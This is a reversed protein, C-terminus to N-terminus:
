EKLWKLQYSIPQSPTGLNILEVRKGPVRLGNAIQYIYSDEYNVGWGFAFSPGLALVRFADNSKPIAPVATHGDTRMGAEDTRYGATFERTKHLYDLNAKLRYVRAPD